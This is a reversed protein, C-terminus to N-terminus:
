PKLLNKLRPSAYKFCCKDISIAIKIMEEDDRFSPLYYLSHPNSKIAIEAYIPNNKIEDSLSEIAMGNLKILDIILDLNNKLRDSAYKIACPNQKIACEVLEKNDTLKKSAYCLNFGNKECAIKMVKLNNRYKLSIRHAEAGNELLRIATRKSQFFLNLREVLIFNFFNPESNM